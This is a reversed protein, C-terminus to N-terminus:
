CTLHCHGAWYHPSLATSDLLFAEIYQQLQERWASAVPETRQLCQLAASDVKEAEGSQFVPWQPAIVDKAGAMLLCLGAGRWERGRDLGVGSCGGLYVRNPVIFPSAPGVLSTADLLEPSGDESIGMAIMPREDGTEGSWEIHTVLSLVGSFQPPRFSRGLLTFVQDILGQSGDYSYGLTGSPDRLNVVPKFMEMAARRNRHRLALDSCLSMAPLFSISSRNVLYTGDPLRALSFPVTGLVGDVGFFLQDVHRDMVSETVSAPLLDGIAMSLDEIGLFELEKSTRIMAERMPRGAIRRLRGALEPNNLLPGLAARYAAFLSLEGEEPKRGLAIKLVSEDTPTPHPHCNQLIRLLSSIARSENAGARTEGRHDCTAWLVRGRVFRLSVFLQTGPTAAVGMLINPISLPSRKGLLNAAYSVGDTHLPRLRRSENAPGFAGSAEEVFKADRRQYVAGDARVWAFERAYCARSLELAELLANPSLGEAHHLFIRLLVPEVNTEIHDQRVRSNFEHDVQLLHNVLEKFAGAPQEHELQLPVLFEDVLEATEADSGTITLEVEQGNAFQALASLVAAQTEDLHPSRLLEPARAFLSAVLPDVEVGLQTLRRSVDASNLLYRILDHYDGWGYLIRHAGNALLEAARYLLQKSDLPISCLLDASYCENVAAQFPPLGGLSLIRQRWQLAANYRGLAKEIDARFGFQSAILVHSGVQRVTEETRDLQQLAESYRDARYLSGILGHNLAVILYKFDNDQALALAEKKLQGAIRNKGLNFLLGSRIALLTAMREDALVPDIKAIIPILMEAEELFSLAVQDEGPMTHSMATAILAQSLALEQRWGRENRAATLLDNCSKQLTSPPEANLQSRLMSYAHRFKTVSMHSTRSDLTKSQLRGLIRNAQRLNGIRLESIALGCSLSVLDNIDTINALIKRVTRRSASDGIALLRLVLRVSEDSRDLGATM